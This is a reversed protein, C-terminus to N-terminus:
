LASESASWKRLPFGGTLCLQRQLMLAEEMADAGTLVDDMYVDRRLAAARVLFTEEEDDALQRLTRMALFPACALGYTVTNLQYEKLDSSEHRWLIRQFDRDDPHVLIQRYMKEVDTALVYRHRRWRLLVDALQPLLNLGVLLSRNLSAGSPVTSSGNFMVRLKTSSSAERTVSHHPLYSVTNSEAPGVPSMHGLVEYQTMSEKCMQQLRPERAFRREVSSLVWRVSWRTAALNPLPEVTPLRVTYRGDSARSHTQRFFDECRQDEPNLPSDGVPLDEQQWFQRVLASLDEEVRCVHTLARRTAAASKVFGSLIWGLATKQAMPQQPEGKRLGEQLIAAYVNAGLLIDVPDTALFDPDALQLGSLHKWARTDTKIGGDYITLRSFVLASVMMASGGGLLSLKLAVHGRACGTQKGGVGFMAVSTPTRALRVRQALAESILSSESGQDVLARAVHTVGFRDTVRVRATALLVAIPTASSYRSTHSTKAIM